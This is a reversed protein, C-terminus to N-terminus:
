ALHPSRLRYIKWAPTSAVVIAPRPARQSLARPAPKGSLRRCAASVFAIGLIKGFM